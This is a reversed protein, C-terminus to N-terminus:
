PKIIGKIFLDYNSGERPYNYHYLIDDVYRETHPKSLIDQHFFWGATCNLEPWRTDGILEKKYICIHDCLCKNIKPSYISGDNIQNNFFILDEDYEYLRNMFANMNITYLYDDSDLQLIYKGKAENLGINLSAACKKNMDNQLIIYEKHNDRIYNYINKFTNDTSADDIVIVEIDDRNPISKLARIVLEEQNYVPIIISLIKM